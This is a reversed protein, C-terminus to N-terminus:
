LGVITDTDASEKCTKIGSVYSIGDGENTNTPTVAPNGMAFVDLDIGATTTVSDTPTIVPAPNADDVKMYSEVEETADGEATAIITYYYDGETVIDQKLVIEFTSGEGDDTLTYDSFGESITHSIIPCLRNTSEFAGKVALDYQDQSSAKSKIKLDTPPIIDTSKDGCVVSAVLSSIILQEDNVGGTTDIIIDVEYISKSEYDTQLTFLGTSSDIVLEDPAVGANSMVYSFSQVCGDVPPDAVVVNAYDSSATPFTQDESGSKPLQLNVTKVFDAVAESICIKQVIM